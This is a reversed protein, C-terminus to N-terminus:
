KREKLYDKVAEQMGISLQLVEGITTSESVVVYNSGFEIVVDETVDSETCYNGHHWVYLAEM